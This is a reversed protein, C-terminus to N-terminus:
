ATGSVEGFGAGDGEGAARLIAARDLGGGYFPAGGDLINEGRPAQWKGMGRYGHIMTALLATGEVMAADVVQGKGSRGAELLACTIGYAMMMGGGGMDAVMNINPHPAAGAPGCMHLSGSIAFYNIDHGAMMAMPGSQGWGTMRAYVLKKNRAHCEEPGLGLREMVGPRYGELLVDATEALRLVLAMRLVDAGMDALMMACFPGPGIGAVEIVRVGQLPGQREM